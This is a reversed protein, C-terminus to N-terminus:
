WTLQCVHNACLLQWVTWKGRTVAASSYSHQFTAKLHKQSSLCYLGWLSGRCSFCKRFKRWCKALGSKQMLKSIFQSPLYVFGVYFDGKNNEKM